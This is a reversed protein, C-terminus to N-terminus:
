IDFVLAHGFTINQERQLCIYLVRRISGEFYITVHSLEPITSQFGDAWMHVDSERKGGHTDTLPADYSARHRLHTRLTTSPAQSEFPVHHGSRREQM